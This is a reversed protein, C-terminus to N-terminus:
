VKGKWAPQRGLANRAAVQAAGRDMGNRAVYENADLKEIAEMIAEHETESLFEQDLMFEGLRKPPRGKLYSKKQAALGKEIQENTVFKSKLAVRAYLKDDLRIERYVRANEVSKAEAGTLMERQVLVDVLRPKKKSRKSKLRKELKKLVELAQDQQKRTILKHKVAIEGFQMDANTPM